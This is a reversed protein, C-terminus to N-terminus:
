ALKNAGVTIQQVSTPILVLDVLPAEIDMIASVDLSKMESELQAVIPLVLSAIPKRRETHIRLAHSVSSRAALGHRWTLAHETLTGKPFWMAMIVHLSARRM